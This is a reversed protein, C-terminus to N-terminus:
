DFLSSQARPAKRRKTAANAVCSLDERPKTWTKITRELEKERKKLDKIQSSFESEVINKLPSIDKRLSFGWARENKLHYIEQNLKELRQKFEDLQTLLESYSYPEDPTNATGMSSLLADLRSLEYSDNKAYAAQAKVWINKENDSLERKLSDPHLARAMKRFLDRSNNSKAIKSQAESTFADKEDDEDVVDADNNLSECFHGESMLHEFLSAPNVESQMSLQITEEIQCSLNNTKKELQALEILTDSYNKDLWFQFQPLDRSFYADVLEELEQIRFSTKSLIKNIQARLPAEDVFILEGM